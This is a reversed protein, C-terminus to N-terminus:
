LAATTPQAEGARADLDRAARQPRESCALQRDSLPNLLGRLASIAVWGRPRLIRRQRHRATNSTDTVDQSTDISTTRKVRDLGPATSAHVNSSM